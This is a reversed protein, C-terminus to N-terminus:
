QRIRMRARQVLRWLGLASVAFTWLRKPRWLTLIAAPLLWIGSHRKLYRISGSVKDIMLATPRLTTGQQALAIQEVAIKAILENRRNMLAVAKEKM